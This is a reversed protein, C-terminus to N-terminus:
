SSETAPARELEDSDIEVTRLLTNLAARVEETANPDALQTKIMFKMGDYAQIMGERFDPTM